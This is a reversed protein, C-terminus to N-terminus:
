KNEEITTYVTVSRPPLIDCIINKVNFTKDTGALKAEATPVTTRADFMHRNFVANVEKTFKIDIKRAKFGVNVVAVTQNNNDDSFMAYMLDPGVRFDTEIVNHLNKTYKSFLGHAYYEIHPVYSMLLSPASGVLHFGDAFEANNSHCSPWLQDFAEWYCIGMIKNKVGAIAGSVMQPGLNRRWELPCNLMGGLFEDSYITKNVGNHELVENLRKFAMDYYNYSVDPNQLTERTLGVIGPGTHDTYIDIMNKDPLNKLCYDLLLQEKKHLTIPNQNPGMIKVTERLGHEKLKENLGIIMQVYDPQWGREYSFINPETFCLLYKVNNIGRKKFALLAQCVWKGYRLSAKKVRIQHENLGTFDAGKSEGYFDEGEGRLYPHDRYWLYPLKDLAYYDIIWGCTIIVDVGIKQMDLAGKYFANMNESDFNWGKFEEDEPVSWTSRFMARVATLGLDKIRRTEEDIMEKTYNRGADDKMYATLHYVAANLAGLTQSYYPRDNYVPLTSETKDKLLEAIKERTEDSYVFSEDANKDNYAIMLLDSLKGSYASAYLTKGNNFTIYPRVLYESDINNSSIDRLEVYYESKQEEGENYFVVNEYANDIILPEGNLDAKKAAVAGLKKIALNINESLAKKFDVNFGFRISLGDDSSLSLNKASIGLAPELNIKGSDVLSKEYLGIDDLYIPEASDNACSYKIAIKVKDLKGSNFLFDIRQWKDYVTPADMNGYGDFYDFKFPKKMWFEGNSATFRSSPPAACIFDLKPNKSSNEDSKIYYYFSYIYDTEPKVDATKRLIQNRFDCLYSCDASHFHERQVKTYVKFAEDGDWGEPYWKDYLHYVHKGTPLNEATGDDVLNGSHDVDPFLVDKLEVGKLMIKEEKFSIKGM